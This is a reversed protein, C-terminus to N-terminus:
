APVAGPFRSLKVAEVGEDDPGGAGVEEGDVDLGVPM